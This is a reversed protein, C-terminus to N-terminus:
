RTRGTTERDLPPLQDIRREELWAALEARRKDQRKEGIILWYFRHVTTALPMRYIGTGDCARCRKGPQGRRSKRHIIRKGKCRPCKIQPARLVVLAFAIFV